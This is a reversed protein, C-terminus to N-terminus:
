RADVPVAQVTATSDWDNGLRDVDTDAVLLFLTGGDAGGLACDVCYTGSGPAPTIRHTIEGGEAVRRFEGAFPMAAWVAGAADICIGDPIDRAPDTFQAFLRQNSLTGDPSRDFATLRHGFSEAVVLMTGDPSVAIGNPFILGGGFHKIGGGADVRVIHTPRPQEHEFLEYGFQTVYANGATDVAMDNAHVVHASLDLIAASEGDTIRRLTNDEMGIVLMDGGPTWGLGSPREPLNLVIEPTGDASMRWVKRDKIDSFYLSGAHWRAAELYGFGSAIVQPVKHM